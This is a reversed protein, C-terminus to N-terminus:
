STTQVAGPDTAFLGTSYTPQYLGGSLAAAKEAAAQAGLGSTFSSFLQGLPSYTDGASLLQARQIASKSAANADGSQQLAAVLSARADEVSSRAKTSYNLGQDAVAQRQKDYLKQLEAEKSARISSDSTGARDLAFVLQKKAEAYQDELQPTAYDLFAKKRGDYFSDTFQSNFTNDIEGTGRRIEEQRKKEEERAQGAGGDGSDFCM